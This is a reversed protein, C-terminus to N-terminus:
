PSVSDLEPLAREGQPAEYVVKTKEPVKYIPYNDSDLKEPSPYLGPNGEKENYHFLPTGGGMSPSFSSESDKGKKIAIWLGVVVFIIM